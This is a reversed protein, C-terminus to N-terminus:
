LETTLVLIVVKTIIKLPDNLLLTKRARKSHAYRDVTKDYDDPYPEKATGRVIDGSTEDAIWHAMRDLHGTYSFYVVLVRADSHDEARVSPATEKEDCGTLVASVLLVALLLVLLRNYKKM